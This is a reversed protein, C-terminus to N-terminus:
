AKAADPAADGLEKTYPTMYKGGILPKGRSKEWLHVVAFVVLSFVPSALSDVGTYDKFRSQVCTSKDWKDADPVDFFGPYLDSAPTGYDLFEDKEYPLLLFGDKPLAFELILRMLTGGVISALGATPSPDKVYFCAFLPM